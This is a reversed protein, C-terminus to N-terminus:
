KLITKIMSLFSQVQSDRAEELIALKGAIPFNRVELWVGYDVSHMISVDLVEGEWKSDSKLGTRAAATRDTWRANSKAYTEMTAGTRHGVVTLATKLKPVLEELNGVVEKVDFTLTYSKNTM